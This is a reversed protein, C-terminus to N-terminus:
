STHSRATYRIQRRSVHRLVAIRGQERRQRLRRELPRALNTIVAQVNLTWVIDPGGPVLMDRLYVLRDYAYYPLGKYPGVKIEHHYGHRACWENRNRVTLDALSQYENTYFTLLSIKM